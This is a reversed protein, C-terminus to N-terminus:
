SNIRAKRRRQQLAALRQRTIPARVPSGLEKMTSNRHITSPKRGHNAARGNTPHRLMLLGGRHDHAAFIM